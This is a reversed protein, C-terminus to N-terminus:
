SADGWALVEDEDSDSANEDFRHGCSLLQELCIPCEALDCGLHHFGGPEVRCDGCREGRRVRWGLRRESGWPAREHAVGKRHLVEISCSTATLMEQDCLDCIAM